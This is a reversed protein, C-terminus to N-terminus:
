QYPLPPHVHQGFGLIPKIELVMKRFIEPFFQSYLPIIASQFFFDVLFEWFFLKEMVKSAM